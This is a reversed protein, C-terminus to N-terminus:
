PERPEAPAAEASGADGAAGARRRAALLESREVRRRDLRALLAEKEPDRPRRGVARGAPEANLIAAWRERKRRRVEERFEDWTKM